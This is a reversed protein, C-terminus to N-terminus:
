DEVVAGSNHRALFGLVDRSGICFNAQRNSEQDPKILTNIGIVRGNKDMSPGGSNGQSIEATHVILQPSDDVIMSVVGESYVIEPAATEDGQLLAALKPDAMTILAPYGWASVRDTRKVGTSFTLPYIGAAAPDELKIVAFDEEANKGCAVVQGAILRGLTKNIIYFDTYGSVVHANTLVLGPAYFFGTGLQADNGKAALVLVVAQEALAAITEPKQPAESVQLPEITANSAPAFFNQQGGPDPPLEMNGSPPVAQGPGTEPPLPSSHLPAGPESLCVDGALLTRLRDIEAQLGDNIGQQAKLLLADDVAANPAPPPSPAVPTRGCSGLLYGLLVLLAGAVAWVWPRHWWPRGEEPRTDSTNQENNM